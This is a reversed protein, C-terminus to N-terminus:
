KSVTFGIEKSYTVGGQVGLFIVQHNRVDYDGAKLTISNGDVSLATSAAEDGDVYWKVNTYGTASITATKAEGTRSLRIGGPPIGTLAVEHSLNLSVTITLAEAPVTIDVSIDVVLYNDTDTPTYKAKFTNSGANGVLTTAPDEGTDWSFGPPLAVEALTQGALATIGTPKTYDPTAKSITVKVGTISEPAPATYNGADDGILAINSITVTRSGADASNATGEATISVDDSGVKNGATISVTVATKGDYVRDTATVTATLPRKAVTVKMTVTVANYTADGAKTATIYGTGAKLFSVAGSTEDVSVTGDSETVAYSIGGDGSGGTATYTANSDGYTKSVTEADFVFAAQSLKGVTIAASRVAAGVGYNASAVARAYVYYTVGPDLDAFALSTQWGTDPATDGTSIAYEPAQEDNNV